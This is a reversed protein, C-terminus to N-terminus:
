EVETESELRSQARRPLSLYVACTVLIFLLLLLQLIVPQNVSLIGLVATIITFGVTTLASRSHSWGSDVLKQFVHTKHPETLREGSRIRRSIVAGTDAAYIAIPSLAALPADALIGLIALLGLSGGILYSGSDGLFLKAKPFNWPLFALGIACLVIGLGIYSDQNLFWFLIAYSAGWVVAHLATIGNIGDMFNVANVTSILVFLLLPFIWVPKELVFILGLCSAGAVLFQLGLRLLPSRSKVDDWAGVLAFGVTSLWIPWLISGLSLLGMAYAITLAIGGGRPVASNHLSRENPIDLVNMRKLAVLVLPLSISAVVLSVAAPILIVERTNM